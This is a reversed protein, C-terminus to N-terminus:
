SALPKKEEKKKEDRRGPHIAASQVVGFSERHPM